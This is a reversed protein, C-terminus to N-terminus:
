QHQVTAQKEPKNEPYIKITAENTKMDTIGEVNAKTNNLWSLRPSNTMYTVEGKFNNQKGTGKGWKGHNRRRRQDNGHGLKGSTQEM